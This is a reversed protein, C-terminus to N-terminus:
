HPKRGSGLPDGLRQAGALGHDTGFEDELVLPGLDERRAVGLWRAHAKEAVLPGLLLRAPVGHGPRELPRPDAVALDTRRKIGEDVSRAVPGSETGALSALITDGGGEARRRQVPLRGLCAEIDGGAQVIGGEAGVGAGTQSAEGVAAEQDALPLDVIGRVPAAAVLPRGGGTWAGQQESRRLQHEGESSALCGCDRQRGGGIHPGQGLVQGAALTALGGSNKGIGPLEGRPRGFETTHLRLAHIVCGPFPQLFEPGLVRRLMAKGGIIFRVRLPNVAHERVARAAPGAEVSGLHAADAETAALSQRSREDLVQTEVPPGPQHGVALDAVEHLAVDAALLRRGIVLLGAVPAAVERDVAGVAPRHARHVEVMPGGGAGQEATGQELTRPQDGLALGSQSVPRQALPRPEVAGALLGDIVVVEGMREGRLQGKGAIRGRDFLAQHALGDQGLRDAFEARGVMRPEFAEGTRGAAGAHGVRQENLVADARDHVRDHGAAGQGVEAALCDAIAHRHDPMVERRGEGGAECQIRRPCRRPVPGHDVGLGHGVLRGGSVLHPTAVGLRREPFAAELTAVIADAADVNSPTILHWEKQIPPPGVLLHRTGLIEGHEGAAEADVAGFQEIRDPVVRLVAVGVADDAVLAPREAADLVAVAQDHEARGGLSQVVLSARRSLDGADLGRQTEDGQMLAPFEQEIAFRHLRRHHGLGALPQDDMVTDGVDADNRQGAGIEAAVGLDLHDGVAHARVHLAAALQGLGEADVGVVVAACRQGLVLPAAVFDVVGPAAEANLGAVCALPLVDGGEIRM